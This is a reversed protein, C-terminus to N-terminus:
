AAQFALRYSEAKKALALPYARSTSPMRWLTLDRRNHSFALPTGIKLTEPLRFHALLTQTALEGTTIITQCYPIQALLKTLDVAEVIQVFKDAANDQLRQVQYATDYIAIGKENLFDRIKNEHFTKNALDVFYDKDDFFVLGFVRWMDNNFNPYYFDMKWRHKPPPFSGLMLIKANEPLFPPLPHTETENM